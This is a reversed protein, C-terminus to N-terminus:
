IIRKLKLSSFTLLGLGAVAFLNMLSETFTGTSAMGLVAQQPASSGSSTSGSSSGGGNDSPGSGGGCNSTCGSPGPTPTPQPAPTATPNVAPPCTQGSNAQIVTHNVDNCSISISTASGTQVVNTGGGSSTTTNNGSTANSDTSSVVQAQQFIFNDAHATSFAASFAVLLILLSLGFSTHTLFKM